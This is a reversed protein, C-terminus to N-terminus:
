KRGGQSEIGRQKRARIIEQYRYLPDNHYRDRKYCPGCMRQTLVRCEKKCSLCHRDRYKANAYKGRKFSSRNAHHGTSVNGM